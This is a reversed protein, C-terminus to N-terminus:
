PGKRSGKRNQFDKAEAEAHKNTSKPITSTVRAKVNSSSRYMVADRVQPLQHPDHRCHESSTHATSAAAKRLARLISIRTKSSATAPDETAPCATFMQSSFLVILQQEQHGDFTARSQQLGPRSFLSPVQLKLHNVECPVWDLLRLYVLCKSNCQTIMAVALFNANGM